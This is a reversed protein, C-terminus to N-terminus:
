RRSRRLAEEYVGLTEQATKRWSFHQSRQLSKERLEARLMDDSLVRQMADALAQTDEPDVTLAADGVVEPLSTRNSCVVPTGCAMAELPPLGFGEYRSPYVFLSAANYVAPKDEEEVFRYLVKEQVGLEAAIPRPDPFLAGKQKDPNGSIFLQLDPDNLKAQLCAFARVLQPVNKREDLGGLYFIYRKGLGYRARVSELVTPDSIPRYEDGAAQYIVRIREAPIHLTQMIEQKAHQSVTIVMTSRRAARAVLSMYARVKGVPRYAPLLLPIVDHITIVTPVRSFFPPAFYPVHLLDLGARHAAAPATFQEWVVKEINEQRAALGSIPYVKYPFLPEDAQAFPRPGLLLYSNHQDEQHLADLLHLMYQGTGSAPFQFFLANMGIKM